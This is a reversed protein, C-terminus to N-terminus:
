HQGYPNQPRDEGTEEPYVNYTDQNPIDSDNKTKQNERNLKETTRKIYDALTKDMIDCRFVQDAAAPQRRMLIKLLM